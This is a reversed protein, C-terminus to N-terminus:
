RGRRAAALNRSAREHGPDLRLAEEFEAVAREVEGKAFLAVGLNNHAAPDDPRANVEKRFLELAKDVKDHKLLLYGLQARMQGAEEFKDRHALIAGLTAYADEWEPRLRLTTRAEQEAEDLRGQEDFLAALNHHAIPASPDLFTVYSWLTESDHWIRTQRWSLTGLAALCVVGAVAAFVVVGRRIRGSAAGGVLLCAGAGALLALGLGPLYSYRPAVLQPGSQALGSVPALLVVYSLWVAPGAPWKRRLWFLCCTLAAVVLASAVMPLALPEIRAPLQYLPSIPYPIVTKWLYFCLGYLAAAVREGLPLAIMEALSRQAHVAMAAAGLALLAYPIKEMWMQRAGFATWERWRMRARRLPYVDLLVLVVPLTMVIAKSAVALAYCAVSGALWWRRGARAAAAELYMAITLLFWLGSLVDRRETVWAVSEVRLPHIAFFLAAVLAGLALAVGEAGIALILLRLAVFYFVAAAIAHLVVNTAHYGIPNMGWALFDAGFSIWTLPIWHGMLTTTFMWRLNHWGLGRYEPNHVLNVDDDWNVFQNQLAPLFVAMTVLVVLLAALWHSATPRAAGIPREQPLPEPASPTTGRRRARAPRSTVGVASHERAPAPM